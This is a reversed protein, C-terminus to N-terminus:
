DRKKQAETDSTDHRNPTIDHGSPKTDHKGKTEEKDM